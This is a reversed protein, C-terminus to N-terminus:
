LLLIIYLILIQHRILTAAGWDHQHYKWMFSYHEIHHHHFYIRCVRSAWDHIFSQPLFTSHNWLMKLMILSNEAISSRHFMIVRVNYIQPWFDNGHIVQWFTMGGASMAKEVRMLREFSLLHWQSVPPREVESSM